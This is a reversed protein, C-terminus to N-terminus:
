RFSPKQTLATKRTSQFVPECLGTQLTKGHSQQIEHKLLDFDPSRLTSFPCLPTHLYFTVTQQGSGAFDLMGGGIDSVRPQCCVQFLRGTEGTQPGSWTASIPMGVWRFSRYAALKWAAVFDQIDKSSEM